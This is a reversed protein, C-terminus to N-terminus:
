FFYKEGGRGGEMEEERNKDVVRERKGMKM